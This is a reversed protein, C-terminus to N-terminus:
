AGPSPGERSPFWTAKLCVVFAFPAGPISFLYVGRLKFQIGKMRKEAILEEYISTMDVPVIM